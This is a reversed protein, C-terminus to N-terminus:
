LDDLSNFDMPNPFAERTRADIAAGADAANNRFLQNGWSAFIEVDSESWSTAVQEERSPSAKKPSYQMIAPGGNTLFTCHGSEFETFGDSSVRVLAECVVKGSTRTCLAHLKEIGDLNSLEDLEYVACGAQRELAYDHGDTAYNM